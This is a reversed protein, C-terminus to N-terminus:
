TVFWGVYAIVDKAGVMAESSDRRGVALALKELEAVSWKIYSASPRAENKWPVLKTCFPGGHYGSTSNSTSFIFSM